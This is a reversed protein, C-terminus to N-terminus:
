DTFLLTYDRYCRGDTHMMCGQVRPSVTYRIKLADLWANIREFIGCEYRDIMGIKKMGDHAFCSQWEAHIVCDDRFTYTFKMFDPMVVGMAREFFSRLDQYNEITEIGLANSLRKAEIMGMSRVAAKNIKNTKEMGCEQMCHLFWMADHTMWNKNLLEVLQKTDMEM